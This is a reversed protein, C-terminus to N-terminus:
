RGQSGHTPSLCGPPLPEPPAVPELFRGRFGAATLMRQHRDSGQEQGGPEGTIHHRGAPGGEVRWLGSLHGCQNHGGAQNHGGVRGQGPGPPGGPRHHAPYHFMQGPPGWLSAVADGATTVLPLPTPPPPTATPTPTPRPTPTPTPTPTLTPTPTFLTELIEPSCESEIFSQWERAVVDHPTLGGTLADVKWLGYQQPSTPLAQVFWDGQVLFVQLQSPDFSSCQGLYSWVLNRADNM